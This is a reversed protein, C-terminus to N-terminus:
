YEKVTLKLGHKKVLNHFEKSRAIRDKHRMGKYLWANTKDHKLETDIEHEFKTKPGTLEDYHKKHVVLETAHKLPLKGKVVEESDSRKAFEGQLHSDHRASNKDTVGGHHHWDTPIVKHNHRISDKNFKFYAESGFSKKVMNHDRTTSVHGDAEGPEIHGSKLISHVNDFPTGHYLVNHSEESLYQIFSIM